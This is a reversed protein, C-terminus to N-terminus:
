SATVVRVGLPPDWVNMLHIAQVTAEFFDRTPPAIPVWKTDEGDVVEALVQFRTAELLLAVMAPSADTFQGDVAPGVIIVNLLWWLCTARKNVRLRLPRADENVLIVLPHGAITVPEIFGEVASQFEILDTFERKEMPAAVIHPVVIGIVM